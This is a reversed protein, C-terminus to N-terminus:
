TEVTPVMPRLSAFVAEAGGSVWGANVSPGPRGHRMNSKLAWARPWPQRAIVADADKLELEVYDGFWYVKRRASVIESWAIFGLNTTHDTLGQLTFEVAVGSVFLRLKTAWVLLLVPGLWLMPTTATSGWKARLAAAGAVLVALSLLFSKLLGRRSVALPAMIM